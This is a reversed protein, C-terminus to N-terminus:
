SKPSLYKDSRRVFMSNDSRAPLDGTAIRRLRSLRHWCLLEPNRSGTTVEFAPSIAAWVWESFCGLKHNNRVHKSNRVNQALIERTGARKRESRHGQFRVRAQFGGGVM